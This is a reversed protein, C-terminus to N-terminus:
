AFLSNEDFNNVLNNEGVRLNFRNASTLHVRTALCAASGGALQFQDLQSVIVNKGLSRLLRSINPVDSGLIVKNGVEVWNLGFLQAEDRSVEVVCSIDPDHCLYDWALESFAKPYAFAITKGNVEVFNLATDLHFFYPDVLELPVVEYDLFNRLDAIAKFASRQGYGFFIKERSPLLIIDGGELHEGSECEVKVGLCELQVKRLEQEPKRQDTSPRALIGKLEDNESIVVVNDKAFVSDFIGHLFPVEILKAGADRMAALFNEHQEIALSSNVAGIRMHPNIEWAVQFVCSADNHLCTSVCKPSSVLFTPQVGFEM